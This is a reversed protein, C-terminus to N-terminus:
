LQIREQTNQKQEFAIVVNDSIIESFEASLMEYVNYGYHANCLWNNKSREESDPLM